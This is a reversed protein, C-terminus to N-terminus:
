QSMEKVSRQLFKAFSNQARTPRKGRLQVLGIESYANEGTIPIFKCDKRRLDLAHRPVVSVGVGSCAMALVHATSSSEAVVNPHLRARRFASAINESYCRGDKLFIFREGSLDKLTMSKTTALRHRAPLVAYLPERILELCDLDTGANAHGIPLVVLALDILGDRLYEILLSTVEEVVRVELQSHETAFRALRSPLFDPSIHPSVGFSVKGNEIGNRDQIESVVNAIEKLIEQAKAYFAEGASTLGVKGHFRDFLKTGLEVELKIIQQSLSPQSVNVRQAAKTFSRCEVVACFYRLQHIEMDYAGASILASRM